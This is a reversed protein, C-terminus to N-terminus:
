HSTEGKLALGVSTIGESRLLELLSAIMGYDSNRDGMIIVDKEEQIAKDVFDLVQQESSNMGKIMYRGEETVAIVAPKGKVPSGTGGPLDVNVQNRIFSTTLVFFIILIFLVDILPTLEIEPLNRRKMRKM